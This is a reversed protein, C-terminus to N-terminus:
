TAIAYTTITSGDMFYTGNFLDFRASAGSKTQVSKLIDTADDITADNFKFQNRKVVTSTAGFTILIDPTRYKSSNTFAGSDFQDNGIRNPIVINDQFTCNNEVRIVGYGSTDALERVDPSTTQTNDYAKLVCCRGHIGAFVSQQVAKGSTGDGVAILSDTCYDGDVDTLTIANGNIIRVAHVCSDVRVQVASALSGRMELLTNVAWGYIGVCKIDNGISLGTHCQRAYFNEIYHNGTTFTAGLYFNFVNVNRVFGNGTKSIGTCKVDAGESTAITETVVENPASVTKSRDFAINYTTPNGVLEFNELNANQVTIAVQGNTLFPFYLTATGVSQAYGKYSSDTTGCPSSAGRIGYTNNGTFSLPTEFFFRGVPFQFYTGRDAEVFKSMIASNSEAYTNSKTITSFDITNKGYERIGYRCVDIYDMAAGQQQDIAVLYKNTGETNLKIGGRANDASTLIKYKGGHGDTKSYFGRTEFVFNNPMALLVENAPMTDFIQINNIRYKTGDITIEDLATETGELTQNVSVAAKGDVLEKIKDSSYTKGSAHTEDDITVNGCAEMQSDTYSMALLLADEGKM